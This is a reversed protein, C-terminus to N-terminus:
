KKLKYGAPCKPSVATKKVTKKGKVCTITKKVVPKATPTPTAVPTPTVVPTPVVESAGEKLVNFSQTYVDSALRAETQPMFYNFKCTGNTFLKIETGSAICISPTESSPNILEEWSFTLERSIITPFDKVIQNSITPVYIEPKFRQSKIENGTVLEKRLFDITKPTFIKYQCYGIKLFTLKSENASCVDPSLSTVGVTVSQARKEVYKSLDITEGVRLIPAIASLTLPKNDTAYKETTFLPGVFTQFDFGLDGNIRILLAKEASPFDRFNTPSFSESYWGQKGDPSFGLIPDSMLNWVGSPATIPINLVGKFTVVSKSPESSSDIRSLVTEFTLSSSDSVNKLHIPLNQTIIGVPHSVKVELNISQPGKLIEIEKPSFDFSLLKPKQFISADDAVSPPVVVVGAM